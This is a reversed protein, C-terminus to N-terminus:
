KRPMPDGKHTGAAAPANTVPPYVGYGSGYGYGYVPPPAGAGASGAVTPSGYGGGYAPVSHRHRTGRRAYTHGGGYIGTLVGGRGYPYYGPRLPYDPLPFYIAPGLGRASERPNYGMAFRVSREAYEPADNDSARAAEATAPEAHPQTSHAGGWHPLQSPKIITQSRGKAYRGGVAAGPHTGVAGPAHAPPLRLHEQLQAALVDELRFADREPGTAKLGGVSRGATADVVQGTLRLLPPDAAFTGFVVYHAGVKRAAAAAAAATAAPEDDGLILTGRPAAAALDALLTQQVSKGRWGSSGGGENPRSDLPMFPLVLIDGLREAPASAEAARAPLAAVVATLVAAIRLLGPRCHRLLIM